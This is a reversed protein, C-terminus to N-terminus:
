ADIQHDIYHLGSITPEFGVGIYDNDNLLVEDTIETFYM